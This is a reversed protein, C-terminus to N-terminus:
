RFISELIKAVVPGSDYSGERFEKEEDSEVLVTIVLEDPIGHESVQGLWRQYSASGTATLENNDVGEDVVEGVVEGETEGFVTASNSAILSAKQKIPLTGVIATLWGHTKRYGREDAGGFEATGTKCAVAGEQIELQPTKDEAGTRYQQNHEFLPFATGGASCVDLMGALVLELHDEQISLGRCEYSPQKLLTPQCRQGHGALSQTMQSMQLPTVLVDGQGIGMHYTNGLYWPEGVVREKWEPNPVVGKAEHGLEIGTLEGLGFLQAFEALRNPGLWEAAKYFFIDNSRAIARRLGIEGDTGGLQTYYWNAYEYDGVKLVGEDIVTTSTDVVGSELSGVATILKFISGPPYVGGVARNFFVQLPDDFYAQVQQQRQQELVTDLYRQSLFNANFTPSSVLSLIEGTQGSEIIVVGRLNGLAKLSLEALYPDLTTEINLGPVGPESSVLRQRRGMANIEFVEKGARGRLIEDFKQELGYKGIQDSVVLNKERLLDDATVPGVYGLTHALENPFLYHRQVGYQVQAPQTAILELAEERSVPAIEPHAAQPDTVAYYLRQNHVLPEGYRDLFVGREPPIRVSFFRNDDAQQKFEVGRIIQVDVLRVLLLSLVAMIATAILFLRQRHQQQLRQAPQTYSRKKIM